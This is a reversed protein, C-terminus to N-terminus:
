IMLEEIKEKSLPLEIFLFASVKERSRSSTSEYWNNFADSGAEFSSGSVIVESLDMCSGKRMTELKM